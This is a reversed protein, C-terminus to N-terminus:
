SVFGDAHTPDDLLSELHRMYETHANSVNNKCKYLLTYVDDFDIDRKM